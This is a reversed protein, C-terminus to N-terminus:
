NVKYRQILTYRPVEVSKTINAFRESMRGSDFTRIIARQKVEVTKTLDSPPFMCHTGNWAENGFTKVASMILARVQAANRPRRQGEATLQSDLQELTDGLALDIAAREYPFNELGAFEGKNQKHCRHQLYIWDHIMFAPLYDMPSLGDVGWLPRPISGGDTYMLKPSITRYSEDVNFDDNRSFRFGKPFSYTLPNSSVPLYVFRTTNEWRLDVEGNFEGGSLKGNAAPFTTLSCSSLWVAAAFMASLSKVKIGFDM